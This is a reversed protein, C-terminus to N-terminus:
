DSVCRLISEAAKTNADNNGLSRNIEECALICENRKQVDELLSCAHKFLNESSLGNQILEPFVEKQALINVICFHPLNVKMIYQAYLRNMLSLKYVVVTPCKHLALELTVTGSKAIACRSDKMLEYSFEKPVPYLANEL